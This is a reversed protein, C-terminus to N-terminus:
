FLFSEFNSKLHLTGQIKPWWEEYNQKFGEFKKPSKQHNESQKQDVRLEKFRLWFANRNSEIWEFFLQFWLLAFCFRREEDLHEERWFFFNSSLKHFFFFNSYLYFTIKNFATMLLFNSIMPYGGCEKGLDLFVGEASCSSSYFKQSHLIQKRSNLQLLKKPNTEKQFLSNPQPQQSINKLLKKAWKKFLNWFLISFSYSNSQFM